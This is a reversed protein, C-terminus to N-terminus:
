YPSLGPFFTRYTDRDADCALGVEVYMAQSNAPVADEGRSVGM